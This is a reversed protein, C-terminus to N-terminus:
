FKRHGNKSYCIDFNSSPLGQEVAYVAKKTIKWYGPAIEEWPM